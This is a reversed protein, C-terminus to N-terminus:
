LTILAMLITGSRAARGGRKKPPSEVTESEKINKCQRKL